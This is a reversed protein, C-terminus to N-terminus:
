VETWLMVFRQARTAAAGLGRPVLLVGTTEEVEEKPPNLGRIALNSPKKRARARWPGDPVAKIMAKSM